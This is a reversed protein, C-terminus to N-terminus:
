TNAQWFCFRLFDTGMMEASWIFDINVSKQQKQEELTLICLSNSLYEGPLLTDMDAQTVTIAGKAGKRRGRADSMTPYVLAAIHGAADVEESWADEEEQSSDDIVLVQAEPVTGTVAKVNREWGGGGGGGEEEGGEGNGGETVADDSASSRMTESVDDEGVLEQEEDEEVVLLEEVEVVVAEEEEEEKEEEEEEENEADELLVAEEEEQDKEEEEGCVVGAGALANASSRQRQQSRRLGGLYHKLEDTSCSLGGGCPPLWDFSALETILARRRRRRRKKINFHLGARALLVAGWARSGAFQRARASIVRPVRAGAKAGLFTKQAMFVTKREQAMECADAQQARAHAAATAALCGTESDHSSLGRKEEHRCRKSKGAKLGVDSSEAHPPAHAAHEGAGRAGREPTAEV